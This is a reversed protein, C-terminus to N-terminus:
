RKLPVDFQRERVERGVTADRARVDLPRPGLEKPLAVSVTRPDNLRIEVALMDLDLNWNEDYPSAV